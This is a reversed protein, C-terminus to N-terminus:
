NRMQSDLRPESFIARFHFCLTFFNWRTETSNQIRRVHSTTLQTQLLWFAGSDSRCYQANPDRPICAARIRVKTCIKLEQRSRSLSLSFLPLSLSASSSWYRPRRSRGTLPSGLYPCSTATVDGPTAVVVGDDDDGGSAAIRAYVDGRGTAAVTKKRETEREKEKEHHVDDSRSYIVARRYDRAIRQQLKTVYARYRQSTLSTLSRSAAAPWAFLCNAFCSWESFSIQIM